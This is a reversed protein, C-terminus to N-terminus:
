LTPQLPTKRWALLLAAVLVVGFVRVSGRAFVVAANFIENAYFARIPWRVAPADFLRHPRSRALWADIAWVLIFLYNLYVGGGWRLGYVVATQDATASVAAVQSWHHVSGMALVIHVLCLTLGLANAWTVLHSPSRASIRRQGHQAVVFLVLAAWITAYIWASV